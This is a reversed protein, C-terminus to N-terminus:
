LYFTLRWLSGGPVNPPWNHFTSRLVITFYNLAINSHTWQVEVVTALRAMGVHETVRSLGPNPPSTVRSTPETVSEVFVPVQHLSRLPADLLQM